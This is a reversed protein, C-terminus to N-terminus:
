LGRKKWWEDTKFEKPIEQEYPEDFGLEELIELRKDDLVKPLKSGCWPCYYITQLGNSSKLDIAYLREYNIYSIAVRNEELFFDMEKCCHKNKM